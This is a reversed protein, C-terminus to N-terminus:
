DQKGSCKWKYLYQAIKYVAVLLEVQQEDSLFRDKADENDCVAHAAKNTLLRIKNMEGDHQYFDADNEYYAVNEKCFLIRGYLNSLFIKKGRNGRNANRGYNYGGQQSNNGNDGGSIFFGRNIVNRDIQKIKMLAFMEAFYRAYITFSLYGFPIRKNKMVPYATIVRRLYIGSNKVNIENTYYLDNHIKNLSVLINGIVNSGTNKANSANFANIINDFCNHNWDTDTTNQYNHNYNYNNNHNSHTTAQSNFNQVKQLDNANPYKSESINSFNQVDKINSKEDSHNAEDVEDLLADFEAGDPVSVADVDNNNANLDQNYKKLRAITIALQNKVSSQQCSSQIRQFDSVIENLEQMKKTQLM